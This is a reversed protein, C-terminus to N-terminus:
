KMKNYDVKRGTFRELYMEYESDTYFKYDGLYSICTDDYTSGRYVSIVDLRHFYYFGVSYGAKRYETIQKLVKYNNGGDNFNFCVPNMNDPIEVISDACLFFLKKIETERKLKFISYRRYRVERVRNNAYYLNRSAWLGNLMYLTPLAGGIMVWAQEGRFAWCTDRRQDILKQEDYMSSIKSSVFVIPSDRINTLLVNSMLSVNEDNTSVYISKINLNKTKFPNAEPIVAFCFFAVFLCGLSIIPRM